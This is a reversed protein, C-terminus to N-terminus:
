IALVIKEIRVGTTPITSLPVGRGALESLHQDSFGLRNKGEEDCEVSVKLGIKEFHDSAKTFADLKGAATIELQHRGAQKKFSVSGGGLQAQGKSYIVLFNPM